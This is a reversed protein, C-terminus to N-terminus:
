SGMAKQVQIKDLLNQVYFNLCSVFPKFCLGSIPLLKIHISTNFKIGGCIKNCLYQLTEWRM